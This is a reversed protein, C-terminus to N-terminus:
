EDTKGCVSRLPAYKWKHQFTRLTCAPYSHVAALLLINRNNLFWFLACAWLLCQTCAHFEILSIGSVHSNGDTTMGYSVPKFCSVSNMGFANKKWVVREMAVACVELLVYTSNSGTTHSRSYHHLPMILQGWVLPLLMGICTHWVWKVHEFLGIM